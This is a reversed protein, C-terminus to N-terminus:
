VTVFVAYTIVGDSWLDGFSTVTPLLYSEGPAVDAPLSLPDCDIETGNDHAVTIAISSGKPITATTVFWATVAGNLYELQVVGPAQAVATAHAALRHTGRAGTKALSSPRVVRRVHQAAPATPIMLLIWVAVLILRM